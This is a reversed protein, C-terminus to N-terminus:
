EPKMIVYQKCTSSFVPCGGEEFNLEPNYNGEPGTVSDLEVSVSDVNGGLNNIQIKCLGKKNTQCQKSKSKNEYTYQYAIMVEEVKRGNTNEIFLKLTPKWKGGKEKISVAVSAIYLSLSSTATPSVSPSETTSSAKSPSITSASGVKCLGSESDSDYDAPCESAVDASNSTSTYPTKGIYNGPPAYQCVLFVEYYTDPFPGCEAYGCGVSASSAWVVQTYHGCVKTDACDNGFYDYYEHEDFWNQVGSVLKNINDVNDVSSAAAYLNEGYGADSHQFVCLDAHTKSSIALNEDWVMELMNTAMPQSGTNGLATASRHTNHASLLKQKDDETLVGGDALLRGLGRAKFRLSEENSLVVEVFCFTVSLIAAGTRM